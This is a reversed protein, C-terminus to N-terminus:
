INKAVLYYDSRVTKSKKYNQDNTLFDSGGYLIIFYYLYYISPRQIMSLYFFFLLSVTYFNFSKLRIVYMVFISTIIFVFGFYGYDYILIKIHSSGNIYPNLISSGAGLGFLQIFPNSYAFQRFGIEFKSTQRNLIIKFIGNEFVIRSKINKVFGIDIDVNYIIAFILLLSVTMILFNTKSKNFERILLFSFFILYGALSFTLFLFGILFLSTKDKLYPKNSRTILLLACVTGVLGAEDYIGSFRTNSSIRVVGGIFLKYYDPASNVAYEISNQYILQNESYIKSISLDIGVQDLLFYIAGPFLSIIFLFTFKKLIFIRKQRELCIFLFLVGYRLVTTITKMASFNELSLFRRLFMLAFTGFAVPLIVINLKIKKNIVPYLLVMVSLAYFVYNFVGNMFTDWMFYPNMSLIGVIAFLWLYKSDSIIEKRQKTRM